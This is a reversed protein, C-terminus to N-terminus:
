ASCFSVQPLPYKLSQIDIDPLLQVPLRNPLVVLQNVVNRIVTNM